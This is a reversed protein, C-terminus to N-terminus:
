LSSIALSINIKDTEKLISKKLTTKHEKNPFEDEDYLFISIDDGYYNIYGDVVDDENLAILKLGTTEEIKACLQLMKKSNFGQKIEKHYLTSKM